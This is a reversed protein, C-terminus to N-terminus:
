ETVEDNLSKRKDVDDILTNAQLHRLAFELSPFEMTEQRSMTCRWMMNKRSERQGHVRGAVGCVQRVTHLHRIKLGAQRAM